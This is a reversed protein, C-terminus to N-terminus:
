QKYNNLIEQIDNLDSSTAPSFHNNYTENYTTTWDIKFKQLIALWKECYKNDLKSMKNIFTCDKDEDVLVFTSPITEEKYFPALSIAQTTINKSYWYGTFEDKGFYHKKYNLSHQLFEPECVTILQGSHIPFKFEENNRYANYTIKKTPINTEIFQMLAAVAQKPCDFKFQSFNKTTVTSNDDYAIVLPKISFEGLTNTRKSYYLDVTTPSTVGLPLKLQITQFFSTSTRTAM